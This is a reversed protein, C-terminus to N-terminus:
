RHCVGHQVAASQVPAQLCGVVLGDLHAEVLWWMLYGGCWLRAIFPEQLLSVQVGSTAMMGFTQLARSVGVMSPVGTPARSAAASQAVRASMSIRKSSQARGNSLGVLTPNRAISPALSKGFGSLTSPVAPGVTGPFNSPADWFTATAHQPVDTATTHGGLVKAPTLQSAKSSAGENTVSSHRNVSTGPDSIPM